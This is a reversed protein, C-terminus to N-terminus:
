VGGLLSLDHNLMALFYIIGLSWILDLVMQFLLIWFGPVDRLSVVGLAGLGLIVLGALMEVWPQGVCVLCSCRKQGPPVLAWFIRYNPLLTEFFFDLGTTIQM